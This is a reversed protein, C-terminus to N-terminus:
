TAFLPLSPHRMRACDWGPPLPVGWRDGAGMRNRPKRTGGAWFWSKKERRVSVRYLSLSHCTWASLAGFVM